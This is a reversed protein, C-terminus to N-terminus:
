APLSQILLNLYAMIWRSMISVIIHSLNKTTIKGDEGGIVLFQDDPTFAISNIDSSHQILGLQAHTSTDWLMITSKTSYAIFEGQHPLAISSLRDSDLVLWESVTSYPNFRKIKGDSVVILHNEFWLLGTNLTPTVVMPIDVLLCGDNSDWVRVSSSGNRTATAFRDDHPSHKVTTIWGDHRLRHVQERTTVDWVFVTGNSSAVILRTSGPSFDIGHIGWEDEGYSLVQKYTKTDWVLVEGQGLGAAIWRSDKSVALCLVRATKMTALQQGDQIRWVRVTTDDGSVLFEGNEALAAVNVEGGIDIEVLPPREQGITLM